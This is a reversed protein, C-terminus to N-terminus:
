YEQYRAHGESVLWDNLNILVDGEALFLEVLPRGYKGKQVFGKKNKITQAILRGLGVRKEIAQTAALGQAREPGREEWANIRALRLRIGNFGAHFGTDLWLDVTDADVFHCKKIHPYWFEDIWKTDM